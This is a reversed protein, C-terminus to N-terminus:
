GSGMTMAALERDFVVIRNRGQEKARYLARDAMAVLEDVTAPTHTNLSAIGMSLRVPSRLKELKESREALEDSIRRSVSLGRDISTHPLLLVFEDGGYRAAIDSSRLSSCIIDAALMLIEDGVQHGYADNLAKYHDLDCMCCTLDFRYRVAEDYTRELVESFRRRNALGTLPDTAAMKEQQALSERLQVNKVRLESLM